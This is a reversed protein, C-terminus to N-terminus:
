AEGRNRMRVFQVVRAAGLGILAIALLWGIVRSTQAAPTTAVRWVTVLGLLIFGLGFAARMRYIARRDVRM